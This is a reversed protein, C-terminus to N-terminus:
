QSVGFLSSVGSRSFRKAMLFKVEAPNIDSKPRGINAGQTERGQCGDAM